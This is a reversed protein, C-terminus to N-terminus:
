DPLKGRRCELKPFAWNIDDRKDQILTRAPSAPSEPPRPVAPEYPPADHGIIDNREVQFADEITM